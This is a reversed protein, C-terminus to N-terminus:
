AKKTSIKKRDLRSAKAKTLCGQIYFVWYLFLAVMAVALAAQNLSKILNIKDEPYFGYSDVKMDKEILSIGLLLLLFTSKLFEEIAITTNFLREGFPLSFLIMIMFFIQVASLVILQNASNFLTITIIPLITKQTFGLLFFNRSWFRKVDVNEVLLGYKRYHEPEGLYVSPHNIKKFLSFMFLVYFLVTLAAFSTDVIHFAPHQSFTLCSFRLAICLSFLILLSDMIKIFGAWELLRGTEIIVSTVVNFSKKKSQKKSFSILMMVLLFSAIVFVFLDGFNKIFSNSKGLDKFHENVNEDINFEKQGGGILKCLRFLLDPLFDINTIGLAKLFSDLAPNFPVNLYLFLNLFQMLDLLPWLMYSTDNFSSFFLALLFLGEFVYVTISFAETNASDFKLFRPLAVVGSSFNTLFSNQSDFFYTEKTINVRLNLNQPFSKKFDISISLKRKKADLEGVKYDFFDRGMMQTFKQDQSFELLFVSPDLAAGNFFCPRNFEITVKNSREWGDPISYYFSEVECLFIGKIEPDNCSVCKNDKLIYQEKCKTCIDRNIGNACNEAPKCYNNNKNEENCSNTEQSYINSFFCAAVFLLILVSKQIRNWM